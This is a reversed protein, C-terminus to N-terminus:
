EKRYVDLTRKYARDWLCSLVYVLRPASFPVLFLEIPGGWSPDIRRGTPDIGMSSNRTGALAGLSTYCLGQYTIDQIHSSAYLLVRSTLRFYYGM